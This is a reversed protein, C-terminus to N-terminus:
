ERLNDEDVDLIEKKRRTRITAEQEAVAKRDLHCVWRLAAYFGDLVTKAGEGTCVLAGVNKRSMEEEIEKLSRLHAVAEFKDSYFADMKGKKVAETFQKVFVAVLIKFKSAPMTIAREVYDKQMSRPVKALMYANQLPIEGRDVMKQYDKLLHTLSLCKGVWSPSKRILCAVQPQTLDPDKAMMKKLQHAYEAPTTELSIANAQIQFSLIKDDPIERIICPILEMGIACAANYRCFGDVIEYRDGLPRVLISNLFGNERLSDCLELFEVSEKDVLRLKNRPEQLVHIPLFEVKDDM